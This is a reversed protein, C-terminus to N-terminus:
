AVRSVPTKTFLAMVASRIESLSFHQAKSTIQGVWSEDDKRYVVLSESVCENCHTCDRVFRVGLDDELERLARLTVFRPKM